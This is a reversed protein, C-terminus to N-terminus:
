SRWLIITRLVDRWHTDEPVNLVATNGTSARSSSHDLTDAAIEELTMTLCFENTDTVNALFAFGDDLLEVVALYMCCHINSPSIELTISYILCILIQLATDGSKRSLTVTACMLAVALFAASSLSRWLRRRKASVWVAGAVTTRTDQSNLESERDVVAKKWM